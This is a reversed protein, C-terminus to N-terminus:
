IYVWIFKVQLNIWVYWEVILGIRTEQIGHNCYYSSSLWVQLGKFKILEKLRDVIFLFGESDIYGLDGLIFEFDWMFRMYVAKKWTQESGNFLLMSRTEPVGLM